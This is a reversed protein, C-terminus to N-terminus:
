RGRIAEKREDRLHRAFERTEHDSITMREGIVSIRKANQKRRAARGKDTREYRKQAATLQERRTM